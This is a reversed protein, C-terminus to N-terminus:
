ATKVDNTACVFGIKLRFGPEALKGNRLQPCSVRTSTLPEKLASLASISGCNTIAPAPMRRSLSCTIAREM